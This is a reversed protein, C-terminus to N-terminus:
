GVRPPDVVERVIREFVMPGGNEGTVQLPLVKGLLAAFSSPEKVALSELYGTLGNCGKGDKGVAEAALLIAEKLARTTKNPVGRKRGIGAAPPRRNAPRVVKTSQDAM